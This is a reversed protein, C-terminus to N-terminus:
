WLTALYELGLKDGPVLPMQLAKANLGNSMARLLIPISQKADDIVELDAADGCDVPGLRSISGGGKWSDVRATLVPCILRM